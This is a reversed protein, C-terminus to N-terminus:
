ELLEQLSARVMPAPTHDAGNVLRLRWALTSNLARAEETATAFFRLGRAYRNAGQFMAAPERERDTTDRDGLLLIFDRGFARALRAADIGSGGLGYPFSQSLTPFAYRGPSSAIARRFRASPLFLVLRHVFQGGASHGIIDYTTAGLGLKQRALDFLHEIVTFGWKAEPQLHGAGDSMNGFAYRDGPYDKERFEPVLLVFDHSEAFPAGINRAEEGTRSSGHMLFLVRSKPSPHSPRHYWVRVPPAEEGGDFEFSGRVHEFAKLETEQGAAVLPAQVLMLLVVRTWHTLTSQVTV